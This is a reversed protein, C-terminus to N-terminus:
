GTCITVAQMCMGVGDGIGGTSGERTWIGIVKTNEVHSSSPRSHRVGVLDLSILGSQIIVQVGSSNPIPHLVPVLSLILYNLVQCYCESHPGGLLDHDTCM